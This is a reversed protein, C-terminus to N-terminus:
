RHTIINEECALELHPYENFSALMIGDKSYNFKTISTNAIQDRVLMATNLNLSLIKMIMVYIPGGSTFIAINEGSNYSDIREDIFGYVDSTFKKWTMVGKMDYKGSHWMSMMESFIIQFSKKDSLLRDSYERLHPKESLLVPLLVKLIGATDHENLREDYQIESIPINLSKSVSIYENITERHRLLTGAYIEKFSIQANHLYEALKVSQLQGTDSLKDYDSAGFSAQGHRIFYLTSM